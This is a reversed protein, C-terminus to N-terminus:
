LSMAPARTDELRAHVEMMWILHSTTTTSTTHSLKFLFIFSNGPLIVGCQECVHAGELQSM